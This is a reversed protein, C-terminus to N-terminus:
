QSPPVQVSRKGLPRAHVAAVSHVEPWQASPVQQLASQAACHPEHLSAPASPVQTTTMPAGRVPPVGARVAHPPVPEQAPCHLPLACVQWYGVDLVAHPLALQLLPVKVGTPPQLPAPLQVCVGVPQAV